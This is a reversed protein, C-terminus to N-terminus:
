ALGLEIRHASSRVLSKVKSAEQELRLDRLNDLDLDMGVRTSALRDRTSHTQLLSRPVDLKSEQENLMHDLIAHDLKELDSAIRVWGIHKRLRDLSIYEITM